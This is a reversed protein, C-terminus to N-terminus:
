GPPFPLLSERYLRLINTLNASCVHRAHLRELESLHGEVQKTIAAAVDFNEKAGKGGAGVVRAAGPRAQGAHGNRASRDDRHQDGEEEEAAAHAESIRAAERVTSPAPLGNTEQNEIVKAARALQWAWRKRIGWRKRCTTM